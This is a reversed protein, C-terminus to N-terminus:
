SDASRPPSTLPPKQLDVANFDATYVAYPGGKERSFWVAAARGDADRAYFWATIGREPFDRIDRVNPQGLLERVEDQTMGKKVQSFRGATMYRHGRAGDLEEKLRPNAPDIALAAEYIEIARRYDGGQRIFQHALAIDEDSKMRIADLLRGSPKEGEVHPNANIFDILRRDLQEGRATVEKALAANASAPAQALQERKADLTKKANQLWAWESDAAHAADGARGDAGKGPTGGRKGSCGTLVAPAALLLVGLVAGGLWRLDFRGSGSRHQM